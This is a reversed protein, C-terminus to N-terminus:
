YISDVGFTEKIDDRISKLADYTWECALEGAPSNGIPIEYTEIKNLCEQIILKAFKLVFETNDNNNPLGNAVLYELVLEHNDNMWYKPIAIESQKVLELLKINM